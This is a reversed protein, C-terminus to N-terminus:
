SNKENIEKRLELVETPVAPQHYICVCRTNAGLQCFKKAVASLALANNTKVMEVIKKM